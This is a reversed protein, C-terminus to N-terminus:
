KIKSDALLEEAEERSINGVNAETMIQVYKDRLKYKYLFPISLLAGVAPILLYVAWLQESFGAHQMAGEGVVFGIIGLCAAAAATSIASNIKSAFTQLAFSIGPASIGTKYHGYEACDPTFMFMSVTMFGVPIGKIASFTYLLIINDYGVFYAIVSLIVTAVTAWFFIYYKDIKKTIVPMLAGAAIAPIATLLALPAMLGEDGLNFRAVYMHLMQAVNLSGSITFAAYFLLLYRNKKVFSVMQKVTIDEADKDPRIREKATFCIPAMFILAAVSLIIACPLWGGIAERVLPIVVYVALTAIMAFIRGLSILSTRENQSDTMTTVLGFIPVDCITYSTNWLMYMISAMAIKVGVPIGSPIAFLLITTIPIALLSIRLWPLFKGGSKWKVKDVVGGFIADIIADAVKVVLTIVTVAAVPIGIDTFYTLLYTLLLFYFINQGMFYLGYTFSEIGSTRKQTNM